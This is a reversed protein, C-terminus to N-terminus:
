KTKLDRKAIEIIDKICNEAALLEGELYQFYSPEHLAAKTDEQYQKLRSLAEASLLFAGINMAKLIEDRANEIARRLEKEKNPNL